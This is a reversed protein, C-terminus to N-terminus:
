LNGESVFTPSSYAVAAGAVTADANSSITIVSGNIALIRKTGSVGAITIYQAQKLGATTNVTLASTGSTISGTVGVLTGATGTVTCYWGKPQGVACARNRVYDGQQWTGATPPVAGADYDLRRKQLAATPVTPTLETARSTDNNRIVLTGGNDDMNIFRGFYGIFTNNQITYGVYDTAGASIGIGSFGFGAISTAFSILSNGDIVCNSSTSGTTFVSPLDNYEPTNATYNARMIITNNSFSAGINRDINAFVVGDYESSRIMTNSNVNVNLCNNLRMVGSLYALDKFTNNAITFGNRVKGPSPADFKIAWTNSTFSAKGTGEYTNGVITWNQAGGVGAVILAACNRVANGVFSFDKTDGIEAAYFTQNSITNGVIALNTCNSTGIGRTAQDIACGEIRVNTHGWIEIPIPGSVGTGNGVMRVNSIITNAFCTDAPSSTQTIAVLSSGCDIVDCDIVSIDRIGTVGADAYFNIAGASNGGTFTCNQVTLYGNGATTATYQARLAGRTKMNQFTCGDILWNRPNVGLSLIHRGNTNGVYNFTLNRVTGSSTASVPKIWDNVATATSKCELSAKDGYLMIGDPLTLEGCLYTGAPFFLEFSSGAANLGAQIATTDDAVGNGVAGFDKVSVREQLRSAVTRNVAGADGENYIIGSANPSIGTGDPFSYVLTNKSDNVLISFNAADVYLQAPTGNRYIYGNSTKLPQSAVITLDDDYYVQLPNTVPNLNSVGIYINGNDLPQGDRDYFVPYPVQISLAAM